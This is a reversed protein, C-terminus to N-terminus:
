RTVGLKKLIAATISQRTKTMEEWPDVRRKALYAPVNTVDFHDSRLDDSLDKWAVPM